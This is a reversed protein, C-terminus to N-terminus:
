GITGRLRANLGGLATAIENEDSGPLLAGGQELGHRLAEVEEPPLGGSDLLAQLAALIGVLAVADDLDLPRVCSKEMDDSRNPDPTR